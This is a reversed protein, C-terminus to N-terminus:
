RAFSIHTRDEVSTFALVVFPARSSEHAASTRLILIVIGVIAQAAQHAM